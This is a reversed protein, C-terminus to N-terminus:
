ILKSLAIHIIDTTRSFPPSYPLDIQELAEDVKVRSWMLGVLGYIKLISKNKGIM